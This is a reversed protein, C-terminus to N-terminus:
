GERRMRRAKEFFIDLIFKKAGKEDKSGMPRIIKDVLGRRMGELWGYLAVV